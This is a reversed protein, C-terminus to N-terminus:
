QNKFMILHDFQYLAFV